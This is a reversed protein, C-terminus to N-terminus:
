DTHFVSGWTELAWDRDEERVFVVTGVAAHAGHAAHAELRFLREGEHEEEVFGALGRLAGRDLELLSEGSLPPLSALTAETSPSPAGGDAHVTMSTFWVSRREDWAVWTGREEWREALEGPIRLSWGAGLLARVPRRRYGVPVRKSLRGGARAKLHARTARLSEEGLHELVESHEDWPIPAEPDLGHAREVWTAVQELLGREGEDLPTRWRVELWMHVRALELYYRADRGASWWPLIDIGQRPDEAVRRVWAEDRPGVTTAVLGEHEYVHGVPLLLGFGRKGQEAMDLVAGALAGLGDLFSQELAAPDRHVLWGTSDAGELSWEVGLAEGLALALSAVHRHYGPGATGTGASLRVTAGEVELVVPEAAPHLDVVLASGELTARPAPDDDRGALWAEARTLLTSSDACRGELRLGMDM